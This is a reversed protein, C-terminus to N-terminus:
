LAGAGMVEHGQGIVVVVEIAVVGFVLWPVGGLDARHFVDDANPGLNGPFVAQTEADAIMGRVGPMPELHGIAIIGVSGVLVHGIVAPQGLRIALALPPLAQVRLIEVGARAIGRGLAEIGLSVLCPELLVVPPM